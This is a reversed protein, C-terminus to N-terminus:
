SIERQFTRFRSLTGITHRELNPDAVLAHWGVRDPRLAMDKDAGAIRLQEAHSLAVADGSIACWTSAVPRNRDDFEGEMTVIANPYEEHVKDGLREITAEVDEREYIESFEGEIYAARGPISTWVGRFDLVERIWSELSDKKVIFSDDGNFRRAPFPAGYSTPGEFFDAMDLVSDITVGLETAVYKPSLYQKDLLLTREIEYRDYPPGVFDFDRLVAETYGYFDDIDEATWSPDKLKQIEMAYRRSIIELLEHDRRIQRELDDTTSGSWSIRSPSLQGGPLGLLIRATTSSLPNDAWPNQLVVKGEPLSLLAASWRSGHPQRFMGPFEMRYGGSTSAGPPQVRRLILTGRQSSNEERGYFAHWLGGSTFAGKELCVPLATEPSLKWDPEQLDVWLVAPQEDVVQHAEPKLIAFKQAVYASGPGDSLDRTGPHYYKTRVTLGPEYNAEDDAHFAELDDAVDENLHKCTVEVAIPTDGIEINFDSTPHEQTEPIPTAGSAFDLQLLDGFARIEALASAARVYDDGCAKDVRDAVWQEIKQSTRSKRILSLAANTDHLTKRGRPSSNRKPVLRLLRKLPHQKHTRSHSLVKRLLADTLFEDLSKYRERLSERIKRIQDEQGSAM